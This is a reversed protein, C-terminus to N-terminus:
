VGRTGLSGKETCKGCWKCRVLFTPQPPLMLMSSKAETCLSRLSFRSRPDGAGLTPSTDRQQHRMHFLGPGVHIKRAGHVTREATPATADIWCRLCTATSAKSFKGRSFDVASRAIRNVSRHNDRRVPGTAGTTYHYGRM